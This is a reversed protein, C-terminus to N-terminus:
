AIVQIQARSLDFKNHIDIFKGGIGFGSESGNQNFYIGGNRRNFVIRKTSHAAAGLSSVQDFDSMLLKSGINGNLDFTKRSLKITDTSAMDLIRDVDNGQFKGTFKFDDNGNGGHLWDGGMGGVLIDVGNGGYLRDKGIGGILRDRGGGGYLSDDGAGGKLLNDDKRGRLRDNGQSGLLTHAELSGILIDSSPTFPAFSIDASNSNGQEHQNNISQALADLDFDSCPTIPNECNNDNGLVSNEEDNVDIINIKFPTMKRYGIKSKVGRITIEQYARVKVVHHRQREYDILGANNVLLLNGALRFRGGANDILKYKLSPIHQRSKPSIAGVLAGNRSNESISFPDLLM